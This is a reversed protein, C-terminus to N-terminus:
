FFYDYITTRRYDTDKPGFTTYVRYFYTNTDVDFCMEGHQDIVTNGDPILQAAEEFALCIREDDMQPTDNPFFGASVDNGEVTMTNDYITNCINNTFIMTYGYNTWCGNLLRNFDIVFSKNDSSTSSCTVKYDDMDFQPFEDQLVAELKSYDISNYDCIVDSIPHERMSVRAGSIDTVVASATPSDASGTTEAVDTASIAADTSPTHSVSTESPATTLAAGAPQTTEATQNASHDASPNGNCASFMFSFALLCLIVLTVQQKM